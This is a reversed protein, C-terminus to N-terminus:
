DTSFNVREDLLSTADESSYTGASGYVLVQKIVWQGYVSAVTDNYLKDNEKYM